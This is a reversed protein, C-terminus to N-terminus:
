LTESNTKPEGAALVLGLRRAAAQRGAFTADTKRVVALLQQELAGLKAPDKGAANLERDFADLASQDGSYTLDALPSVADAAIAPLALGLSLSFLIRRMAPLTSRSM